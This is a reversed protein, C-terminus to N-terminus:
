LQEKKFIENLFKKAEKESMGELQADVTEALFDGETSLASQSYAEPSELSAKLVWDEANVEVEAVSYGAEQQSSKLLPLYSLIALAMALFGGTVAYRVLKSEKAPPPEPETESISSMIKSQLNAYYEGSEPLSDEDSFKVLDRVREYGKVIQQDTESHELLLDMDEKLSPELLDEVYDLWISEENSVKESM